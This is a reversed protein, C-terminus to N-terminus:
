IVMYSNILNDYIEDITLGVLSLYQSKEDVWDSTYYEKSSNSDIKYSSCFKVKEGYHLMFLIPYPIGDGIIKLVNSSLNNQRLVIEIVEIEQFQTGAQVNLTEPSFKNRWIIKEIENVFCNKVAQTVPLKEYFKAKPIVRNFFTKEPFDLM